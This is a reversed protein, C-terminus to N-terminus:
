NGVQLINLALMYEAFLLRIGYCLIPGCVIKMVPKSAANGQTVLHDESTTQIGPWSHGQAVRAAPHPVHGTQVRPPRVM